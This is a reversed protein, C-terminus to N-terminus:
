MEPCESTPFKNMIQRMEILTEDSGMVSSESGHSLFIAVFPKPNSNIEGSIKKLEYYEVEVSIIWSKAKIDLRKFLKELVKSIM